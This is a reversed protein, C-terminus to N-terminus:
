TNSTINNTLINGQKKFYNNIESINKKNNEAIGVSNKFNSISNSKDNIDSTTKMINTKRNKKRQKKVKIKTIKNENKNGM